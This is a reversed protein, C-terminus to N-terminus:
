AQVFIINVKEGVRNVPKGIIGPKISNRLLTNFNAGMLSTLSPSFNNRFYKLKKNGM